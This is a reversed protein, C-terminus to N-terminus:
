GDILRELEAYAKLEAFVQKRKTKDCGMLDFVLASSVKRQSPAAPVGRSLAYERRAQTADLIAFLQPPPSELIRIFQLADQSLIQDYERIRDARMIIEDPMEAKPDAILGHFETDNDDSGTADLNLRSNSEMIEKGVWRNLHHRAGRVLFAVFPVNHEPSWADRAKCWAICIEQFVDEFQVSSAGANFCRRHVQHALKLLLKRHQEFEVQATM